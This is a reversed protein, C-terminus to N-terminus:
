DPNQDNVLQMAKELPETRTFSGSHFDSVQVIKLGNFEDPLNRLPLKINRVQYNYGTRIIGYIFQFLVFGSVLLAAQSLFLSRSITKSGAAPSSTKLFFSAIWRGLRIVDDVIMFAVILIKPIYFVFFASILYVRLVKPLAYYDFFVIYWIFGITIISILWYTITVVRKVTIGSSQTVTRIAQFAYIDISLLIATAILLPILRSM